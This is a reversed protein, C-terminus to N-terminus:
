VALRSGPMDVERCARESGTVEARGDLRFRRIYGDGWANIEYRM